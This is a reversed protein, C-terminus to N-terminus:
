AAGGFRMDYLSVQASVVGARELRQSTALIPERLPIVFLGNTLFVRLAFRKKAVCFDNVAQKVGAGDLEYDHGIIYEPNLGLAYELDNTVPHYHHDGDIHVVDVPLTPRADKALKWARVALNTGPFAQKRAHLLNGLALNNSNAHGSENDLWEVRQLTPVAAAAAALSYGLFAGIEFISAPNLAKWVRAYVPYHQPDALWATSGYVPSKHPLGQMLTLIDIM